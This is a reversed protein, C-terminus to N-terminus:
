GITQLTEYAGSTPPAYPVRHYTCVVKAKISAKCSLTEAFGLNVRRVLHQWTQDMAQDM